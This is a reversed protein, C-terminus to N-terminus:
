RLSKGSSGPNVMEAWPRVFAIGNEYRTVVVETGNEIPGSGDTRAPVSRRAGDRTYLIEGIGEQRITSSVSGLVGVMDYDAPNMEERERMLVRSLFWFVISAGAFGSLSSISLAALFPMGYYNTTLYGAGGFWTLFAAITGMNFPSVHSTRAGDSANGGDGADGHHLATADAHGGHHGQFGHGHGHGGAAFGDGGHHHLDLHFHGSVVSVLSFFFGFLFCFLYFDSWNM